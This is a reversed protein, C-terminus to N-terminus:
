CGKRQHAESNGISEEQKSARLRRVADAVENTTRGIVVLSPRRVRQTDDATIPSRTFVVAGFRAVTTLSEEPPADALAVDIRTPELLVTGDVLVLAVLTSKTTQHLAEFSAHPM